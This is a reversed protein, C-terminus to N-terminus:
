INLSVGVIWGKNATEKDSNIPNYYEGYLSFRGGLYIKTGIKWKLGSTPTSALTSGESSKSKGFPKKLICLSSTEYGIGIYPMIYHTLGGLRPLPFINLYGSLGYHYIRKDPYDIFSHFYLNDVTYKSYFASVDIMIPYYNVSINTNVGYSYKVMKEEVRMLYYIDLFELHKYGISFSLKGWRSDFESPKYFGIIKAIGRKRALRKQEMVYAKTCGRYEPHNIFELDGKEDPCKDYINPIGDLDRDIVPQITRKYNISYTALPTHISICQFLTNVMNDLDSFDVSVPKKRYDYFIKIGQLTTTIYKNKVSEDLVDIPDVAILSKIKDKIADEWGNENVNEFFEIIDVGKDLKHGGEKWDSDGLKEMGLAAIRLFMKFDNRLLAWNKRRKAEANIKKMDCEFCDFDYYLKISYDDFSDKIQSFVKINTYIISTSSYGELVCQFIEKEKFFLKVKITNDSNNNLVFTNNTIDSISLLSNNWYIKKEQSYSFFYNALLFFLVLLKKKM